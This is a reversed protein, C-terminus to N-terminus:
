AAVLAENFEGMFKVLKPMVSELWWPDREVRSVALPEGSRWVVFDCWDRRACDLQLRIQMEYDPRENIHRFLARSPCKIELMGDDRILGDPTSGLFEYTPHRVFIQSSHAVVGYQGAYDNIADPEHARGYEAMQEMYPDRPIPPIGQVEAVMERLVGIRSKGNRREGLIPAIRSGTIRGIRDVSLGTVLCAGSSSESRSDEGVGGQM